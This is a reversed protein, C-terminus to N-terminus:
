LSSKTQAGKASQHHHHHHHHLSSSLSSSSSSSSSSLKPCPEDVALPLVFGLKAPKACDISPFGVAAVVVVVVEAVVVLAVVM